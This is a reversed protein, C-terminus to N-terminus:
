VCLFLGSVLAFSPVVTVTYPLPTGCLNQPPVVCWRISSVRPPVRPIAGVTVTYPLPTDCLNQPPVVYWRISSVGPIVRPDRSVSQSPEVVQVECPSSSRLLEAGTCPCVRSM